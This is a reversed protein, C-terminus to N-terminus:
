SHLHVECALALCGTIGADDGLAPGVIYATMPPHKLYGKLLDTLKQRIRELLGEKKMVGGGFIIVDPSFLLTATYACQALYDAEIDWNLDDEPLDQGPCGARKALAPGSALGELCDKHYPCNGEYNDDPHRRVLIHGMEPHNFGEIFRGEQIAGGGIGTGVTYYVGSASGKAHGAVFEGYCAANVDTTWAVPVNFAKKLTGVFDFNQWGPKPTSTIFGYTQSERQIDIPGFSGIGISALRDEYKKFFECVRGMTEQPITTPFSVREIIDLEQTGVACVFKTGGAEIAGFIM